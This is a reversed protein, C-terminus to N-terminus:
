INQNNNEQEDNNDDPVTMLVPMGSEIGNEKITKFRKIVFGKYLFINNTERLESFKQYLKEEAEAFTDNQSCLISYLLNPSSINLSFDNIRKKDNCQFIEGIKALDKEQISKKLDMITKDKLELLDQYSARMQNLTEKLQKIVEKDDQRSTVMKKLYEIEKDKQKINEKLNEYKKRLKKLEEEKTEVDIQLTKIIGIKDELENKLSKNKEELIGDALKLQTQEITPNLRFDKMLLQTQGSQNMDNNQIQQIKIHKNIYSHPYKNNMDNYSNLPNDNINNEEKYKKINVLYERNGFRNLVRKTDINNMKIFNEFGGNIIRKIETESNKNEFKIYYVPVIMGNSNIIGIEVNNLYSFFIKNSIFCKYKNNTVFNVHIEQIQSIQQNLEYNVLYLNNMFYNKMHNIGQIEISKPVFSINGNTLEIPFEAGRQCIKQQMLINLIRGVDNKYEEYTQFNITCQEIINVIQDYNYFEKFKNIWEGNIFYYEDASTGTLPDSTKTKLLIEKSFGYLLILKRLIYDPVLPNTNQNYSAM